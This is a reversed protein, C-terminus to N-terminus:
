LKTTISNFKSHKFIWLNSTKLLNESPISIVFPEYWSKDSLTTKLFPPTPCM